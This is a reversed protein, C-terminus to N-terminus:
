LGMAFFISFIFFTVFLGLLLHMNFTNLPSRLGFSNKTPKGLILSLLLGVIINLYPIFMLLVFWGTLNIDHFRKITNLIHASIILLVFMWFVADLIFYLYSDYNNTIYREILLRSVLHLIALPIIYIMSMLMYLVYRM